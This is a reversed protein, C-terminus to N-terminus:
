DGSFRFAYARRILSPFVAIDDVLRCLLCCVPIHHEGHGAHVGQEIQLGELLRSLM